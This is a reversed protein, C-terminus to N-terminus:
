SIINLSYIVCTTSRRTIAGILRMTSSASRRRLVRGTGVTFALLDGLGNGGARGTLDVM